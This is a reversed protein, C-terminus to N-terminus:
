RNFSYGVSLVTGYDNLPLTTSPNKRDYNDFFSLSVFLDKYVEIKVKANADIRYRGSTTLSPWLKFDGTIDLKPSYLRFVQTNLGLLAEANNSREAGAYHESSYSAGGYAALVSRNTHILYRGFAGGALYRQILNLEENSSFQGIVGLYNGRSLTEKLTLGTQIRRTSDTQDRSVLTSSAQLDVSRRRTTYGVDGDFNLQSTSQSKQYSYGFDASGDFRNAIRSRIPTLAVVSILPIPASGALVLSGSADQALAGFLPTSRGALIIEFVTGSQIRKVDEWRISVTSLSDTKATLVGRSLGKIECTVENGNVLTVTDTKPRASALLALLVLLAIQRRTTAFM